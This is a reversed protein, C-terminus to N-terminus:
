GQQDNSKIAMAMKDYNHRHIFIIFQVLENMIVFITCSIMVKREWAGRGGGIQVSGNSAMLSLATIHGWFSKILESICVHFMVHFVYSYITMFSSQKTALTNTGM